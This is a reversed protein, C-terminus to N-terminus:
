TTRYTTPASETFSAPTTSDSHSSCPQFMPREGTPTLCTGIVLGDAQGELAAYRACKAHVLCLTGTCGRVQQPCHSARHGFRLCRTCRNDPNMRPLMNKGDSM